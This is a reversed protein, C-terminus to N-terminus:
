MGLNKMVQSMRNYSPVVLRSLRPHLGDMIEAVPSKPIKQLLPSAVVDNRFRERVSPKPAFGGMIGKVNWSAFICNGCNRNGNYPCSLCPYNQARLNKPPLVDLFM